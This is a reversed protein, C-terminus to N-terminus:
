AKAANHEAKAKAKAEREAKDRAIKEAKLKANQEAKEAKTKQKMEYEQAMAYGDYATGDRDGTPIKFVLVLYEDNGDKDVCPVCLENSATQLVEQDSEELYKKIGNMFGKRLEEHLAKKSMAM